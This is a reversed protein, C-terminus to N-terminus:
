QNEHVSFFDRTKQLSFRILLDQILIPSDKKNQASVSTIHGCSLVQRPNIILGLYYHLSNSSEFEFTSDIFNQIRECFSGNKKNVKTKNISKEFAAFEQILYKKFTRFITKFETGRISHKCVNNSNSQNSEKVLKIACKNNLKLTDQVLSQAIVGDELTNEGDRNSEHPTVLNVNAEALIFDLPKICLNLGIDKSM